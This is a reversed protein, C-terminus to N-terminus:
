LRLVVGDDRVFLTLFNHKGGSEILQHFFSNM